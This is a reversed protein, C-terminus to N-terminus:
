QRMLMKLSASSRKRGWGVFLSIWRCAKEMQRFQHREFPVNLRPAFYNDFLEMSEAFPKIDTGTLFTCYLEQFNLGGTHLLLATKHEDKTIGKCGFVSQVLTEVVELSSCPHESRGKSQLSSPQGCWSSSCVDRNAFSTFKFNYEFHNWQGDDEQCFVLVKRVFSKWFM